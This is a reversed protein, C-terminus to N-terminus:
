KIQAKFDKELSSIIKNRIKSVEEKTLNKEEDQYIIRFTRSALYSDTLSVDTILNSQSKIIKIINETSVDNGAIVSVDEIVPPYKAFPRYEKKFSAYQLIVEFNLEFDILNTDLVEIEGLYTKNIYLSAGVANKESPKFSVNKIGLNLLLQEIIGKVEYFNANKNKLVGSLMLVENPLAQRGAPLDNVKKHYVNALEFIKFVETKKNEAIVHLLSPILSNRMYVFDETLPNSVEVAEELPGEYMEESVFSYTYCETFGWYKLAQKTKKEWFYEDIYSYIFNNNIKPLKDPLNSFGYIRAIEEIVDEEISIDGARQSPVVIKLKEKNLSVKFGLDTLAKVSKKIDIDIGIVRNIKEFSIEITKGKPKNPYIDIIESITKGKAYDKFLEIGYLLADMALKPDIIKENLVTAETRIGLKMSANRIRTPQNNDIFYLIRKTNNTVVSNELGMIGLLDVIEGNERAAVIEGGNLAYNKGDLTKIKEGLKGERITLVKTKLRDFDFVHSPHGIIRMVYNTVDIVNNLSRISSTELREKIKPNSDSIEVDMLVACIRNVLKPDNKIILPMKANNGNEKELKLPVFEAKIGYTPLVAAAERAIGLVSYLDTRNTTVEIEYIYDNGYKEVKEVSCSSLSLKEAIEYPEAPTKLYERLLSDLIRLTM